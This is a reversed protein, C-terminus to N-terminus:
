SYFLIIKNYFAELGMNVREVNEDFDFSDGVENLDPWDDFRTDYGLCGIDKDPTGM